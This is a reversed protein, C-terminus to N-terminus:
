ARFVPIQQRDDKEDQKRHLTQAGFMTRIDNLQFEKKSKKRWNDKPNHWYWSLKKGSFKFGLEKLTTKHQKTDGTIWLWSGILELTTGDLIIAKEIMEMIVTERTANYYYKWEKGNNSNYVNGSCHKLAAHYQDNIVQMIATSGGRDPHHLFALKRFQNKIDQPTTQNTFYTM